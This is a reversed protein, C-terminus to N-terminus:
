NKSQGRDSTLRLGHAPTTGLTNHVKCFNYAAVFLSIAHRLNEVTKSYGITSRTFRRTFTRVSLNTRGALLTKVRLGAAIFLQIFGSKLGGDLARRIRYHM